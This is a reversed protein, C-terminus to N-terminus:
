SLEESTLSCDAACQQGEQGHFVLKSRQVTRALVIKLGVRVQQSFFTDSVFGSLGSTVEFLASERTFGICSHHFLHNVFWITRCMVVLLQAQAVIHTHTCVHRIIIHDVSNRYKSKLSTVAMKACFHFVCFSPRSPAPTGPTPVPKRGPLLAATVVLKEWSHPPGMLVQSVPPFSFLQLHASFGSLSKASM